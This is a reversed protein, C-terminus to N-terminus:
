PLPRLYVLASLSVGLIHCWSAAPDSLPPLCRTYLCPPISSVGNVHSSASSDPRSPLRHPLSCPSPLSLHHPCLCYLTLPSFSKAHSSSSAAPAAIPTCPTPPRPFSLALFFFTRPYVPLWGECTIALIRWSFFPRIAPCQGYSCLFHSASVLM